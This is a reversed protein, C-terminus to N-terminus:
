HSENVVVSEVRVYKASMREVRLKGGTSSIQTKQMVLLSLKEGKNSIIKTRKGEVVLRSGVGFEGSSSFVAVRIHWHDSAFNCADTTFTGSDM